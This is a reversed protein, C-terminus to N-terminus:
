FFLIISLLYTNPLGVCGNLSLVYEAEDTSEIELAAIRYKYILWIICMEIDASFIEM